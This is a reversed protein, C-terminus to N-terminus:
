SLYKGINSVLHKASFNAYKPRNLSDNFYIILGLLLLAYSIAKSLSNIGFITNTIYNLIVYLGYGLLAGFIGYALIDIMAM